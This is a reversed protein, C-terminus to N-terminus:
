RTVLNTGSSVARAATLRKLSLSTQTHILQAAFNLDDIASSFGMETAGSIPVAKQLVVTQVALTKGEAQPIGMTTVTFAIKNKNLELAVEETLTELRDQTLRGIIPQQDVTPNVSAVFQLYASKEKKARGVQIPNGNVTTVTYSFYTDPISTKAISLGLDECWVKVNESINEATTTPEHKVFPVYGTTAYVIIALAAFTTIWYRALDGYQPWKKRIWTLITSAGAILVAAVISGIVGSFLSEM